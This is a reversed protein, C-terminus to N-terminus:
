GASGLAPQPRGLIYATVGALAIVANIFLVPGSDNTLAGTAGAALGGVLAAAWARHPLDGYISARSRWAFAVALLAALVVLPTGGRTLIPWALEYRRTVLEWLETADSARTLNRSLHGGSSLGLDIAILLALAGIPVLAALVIRRPTLRGGLLVVMAAAVGAAVTLV